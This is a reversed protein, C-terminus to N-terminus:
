SSGEKPPLLFEFACVTIALLIAPAALGLWNPSSPLHTLEKLLSGLSPLPEAVGLGLLSLNAEDLIFAPVAVIFQTRLVPWLNPLLHVFLLRPRSCGTALARLIYDSNLQTRCAGRIVRASGAWGLLGLLLFTIMVSTVPSVNLPLVARATILVLFIPVSIMLDILTSVGRDWWGGFWGASLGLVAALVLALVSAAPALLLSVRAGALLRAARDRGLEDTGLLHQGGPLADTQDRFQQDYRAPLLFQGAVGALLLALLLAIALRKM